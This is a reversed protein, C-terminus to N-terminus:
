EAAQRQTAKLSNCFDLMQQRLGKIDGGDGNWDNPFQTRAKEVFAKADNTNAFAVYQDYDTCSFMDKLFARQEERFKTIGPPSKIEAKPTDTKKGDDTNVAFSSKLSNVYKSDDFM